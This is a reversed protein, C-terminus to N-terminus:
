FDENDNLLIQNLVEGRQEKTMGSLIKIVESPVMKVNNIRMGKGWKGSNKSTNTVVM